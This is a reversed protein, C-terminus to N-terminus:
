WGGPEPADDPHAGKHRVVTIQGGTEVTLTGRALLLGLAHVLLAEVFPPLDLADDLGVAFDVVEPLVAKVATEIVGASM